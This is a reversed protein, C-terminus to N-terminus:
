QMLRRAAESLTYVAIGQGYVWKVLGEFQATTWNWKGRMEPAVNHFQIVPWGGRSLQQELKAVVDELSVNAGTGIRSLLRNWISTSTNLQGEGAAIFAYYKIGIEHLASSWTSLPVIFADTDFGHQRFVERSEALEREASGLRLEDAAFGAEACKVCVTPNGPEILFAEPMANFEAASKARRLDRERYAVTGVDESRAEAIWCGSASDFRWSAAEDRYSPPLLTMRRHFLSHSAIEWGAEVLYRLDEPRMFNHARSQDWFVLDCIAGVTGVMGYRRLIPEAIRRVSNWGDDFTFSIM